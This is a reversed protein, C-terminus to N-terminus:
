CDSNDSLNTPVKINSTSVYIVKVSCLNEVSLATKLALKANQRNFEFVDLKNGEVFAYYTQSGDEYTLRYATTEIPFKQANASVPTFISKNPINGTKYQNIVKPYYVFAFWVLAGTLALTTVDMIQTYVKHTTKSATEM